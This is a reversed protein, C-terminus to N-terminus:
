ITIDDLTDRQRLAKSSQKSIWWMVVAGISLLVIWYILPKNM